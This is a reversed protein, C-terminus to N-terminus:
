YNIYLWGRTPQRGDGLDIIFLYPGVPLRNRSSSNSIQDSVAEWDNQYGKKKFVLKGSRNFVQVLNNPYATVGQIFWGDNIGDGNPSIGYSEIQTIASFCSSNDGDNSDIIGDGDCDEDIDIVGNGDVDDDCFDPEGDGDSDVTNIIIILPSSLASMNNAADIALATFRYSGDALVTSSYDVTFFGVTNTITTGIFIDSEFVEILTNRETLGSIKLTNDGTINTNGICTYNSIYTIDPIIPAINDYEIEFSLAEINLNTALDEAVGAPIDVMVVSSLIPTILVAYQSASVAVFSSTTGNTVIVDTEEFGFVDETFTINITFAANTPNAVATTIEVEPNTADYLVSLRNSKSNGNKVVDIVGAAAIDLAVMGDQLPTINSSYEMSSVATISGLTGNEISIDTMEFNTIEESFTFTVMFAANTPNADTSSILVTPRIGDIDVKETNGKNNLLLIAGVNSTDGIITGGNLNIDTGVVIGNLDEDGEVVTYRFDVTLSGSVTGNVTAQVDRTGITVPISPAGTISVEDTFTISFDLYDGIGYLGDAPVSVGIMVPADDDMVTITVSDVATISSGLQTGSVSSLTVTFDETSEGLLDDTIPIAITQTEGLTGVFTAGAADAFSTYDSNAVATGDATTINLVVGGQVPNTLSAVVNAVGEGELVTVAEITVTTSDENNITVTSVDSIDVGLLTASLNGQSIIVTENSEVTIDSMPTVSFTKTEGANGVFTLTQSAVAGYDSDARTATGDITNMDVTFGGQVDHDLTATITIAGDDENGSIDAITVAASDDNIISYTHVTHMGLVANFPSSLTVIVTENAELILDDVISMITINEHVSGPDLILLGSTLTYDVGGGIATGSITYAVSVTLESAISTNVLVNAFNINELQQSSIANFSIMPMDDETITITQQQVGNETGNTIGTIDLIITKDVEPKANDAATVGIAANATTQGALITVSTSATSNYNTGKVATGSYGLNVTVDKGFVNSLTATITATGGNEDISVNDVSLAVTPLPFVTLTFNQQATGGFGDNAELTVTHIGVNGLPDGTLVAGAFSLKRIKTNSRDAVYFDGAVDIAIDMPWNFKAATGIGDAFGGGSGAFTSVIGSQTVKRIKHNGQDAVYLNGAADVAIGTPSNFEAAVGIGDAFGLVGSGAITSVVGAPTIKRIAYNYGDGVYITGSADVTVASPYKFQANVGTGDAFGGTSGALTTVVGSPTIKRIRHNNQDAVYVNGAVDVDIGSLTSFKAAAGTGDLYGSTSGALTTVVGAPTIKRVKANGNDSIYLNNAADIAIQNPSNFKAAAGIGDAYGLTSGAFTSVVGEPTIKRIKANYVDAVYMNGSADVAIGWPENFKAASGTGDSFGKTSGALTSVKVEGPALTLWTPLQSATITVHDNNGDETTITYSYQENDGINTIPTSTFSPASNKAVIITYIKISTGDEATIKIDVMNSGVNLALDGSATASTVTAYGGRNVQVEITANADSQTPTVTISTTSSSVKDTTYMLTGAAFTENLAGATTTLATLAADTSKPNNRMVAIAYPSNNTNTIDPRGDGDIDVIMVVHSGIGGVIDIADDFNITGSTSKNVFLQVDNYSPSIAVDQKGDGDLDGLSFNTPYGNIEKIVVPAFILTGISGTNRFVQLKNPGAVLIDLKGDGDVDSIVSFTPNSSTALDVKSEFNIAGFTSSNRLVSVSSSLYNSVVLDLKGDMDVDGVAITYAMSGTTFAVSAAFSLSGSTGTNRYVQIFNGNNTIIVDIKGDGDIDGISVRAAAGGTSFDVKTAFSVAGSSSTNTYISFTRAGENATVLDLKGDGNIDGLTIGKVGGSTPIEISAAFSVAGSTSTNRLLSISNASYSALLMEPKGDGDIDGTAMQWRESSSPTEFDLKADFDVVAIGNKNSNFTPTFNVSSYSALASETNLVTIPAYTAGSPVSVTLSSTTASTVTAKTAGFFVINNSATPNFNTGTLTVTSGVASHVPSFSIIKPPPSGGQAHLVSTNSFLLVFLFSCLIVTKKM